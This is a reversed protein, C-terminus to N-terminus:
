QFRGPAWRRKIRNSRGILVRYGGVAVFAAGALTALGRESPPETGLDPDMAPGSPLDLPRATMSLGAQALARDGPSSATNEIPEEMAPTPPVAPTDEAPVQSPATEPNEDLVPATNQDPAPSTQPMTPPSPLPDANEVVPNSLTTEGASQVSSTSQSTPPLSQGLAPPAAASQTTTTATTTQQAISPAQTSTSQTVQAQIGFSGTATTSSALGSIPQVLVSTTSSTSTSSSEDGFRSGSRGQHVTTTTTTTTSTSSSSSTALATAQTTVAAESVGNVKLIGAIVLSANPSGLGTVLDYGPTASYGNFGSTIDHFDSSPLSYLNSQAQTNSLTGKGGAVLGQDAIAILAAWAPTAASTGGVQYWGSSGNYSVSDYVPVGTAPNANFSVDPTTRVGYSLGM